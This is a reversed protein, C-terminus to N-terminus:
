PVACVAYAVATITGSASTNAVTVRWATPVSGPEDPQPRSSRIVPTGGNAGTSLAGGGTAVEGAECSALTSLSVNTSVTNGTRVILHPQSTLGVDLPNVALENSRCVDRLKITAGDAIRGGSQRGCLVSASAQGSIGAAVLAAAIWVPRRRRRIGESTDHRM